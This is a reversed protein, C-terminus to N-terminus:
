AQSSHRVEKRYKARSQACLKWIRKLPATINRHTTEPKRSKRIHFPLISYHLSYNESKIKRNVKKHDKSGVISCSFIDGL